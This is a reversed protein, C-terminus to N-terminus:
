GQYKGAQLNSALELEEAKVLSTGQSFIAKGEPTDEEGVLGLAVLGSGKSGDALDLRFMKGSSQSIKWCVRGGDRQAISKGTAV